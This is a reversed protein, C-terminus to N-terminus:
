LRAECKQVWAMTTAYAEGADQYDLWLRILALLSDDRGRRAQQEALAAKPSQAIRALHYADLRAMLDPTAQICATDYRQQTREVRQAAALAMHVVHGVVVGHDANCDTCLYPHTSPMALRQCVLCLRRRPPLISTIPISPMM